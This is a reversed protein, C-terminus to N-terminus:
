ENDKTGKKKGRRNKASISGAEAIQQLHEERIIKKYEDAFYAYDRKKNYNYVAQLAVVTDREVYQFREVTAYNKLQDHMRNMDILGKCALAALVPMGKSKGIATVSIYPAVDNLFQLITEERYSPTQYKITKEAIKDSAGVVRVGGNAVTLLMDWRLNKHKKRSEKLAIYRPDGDAAYSEIFDDSTWNRACSNMAQCEAIGAGNSIIYRIPVDTQEFAVLRNQGDVVGYNENVNIPCNMVGHKKISEAIVHPHDVQRNGDIRKFKSYDKTEYIFGVIEDDNGNAMELLEMIKKLNKTEKFGKSMIKM